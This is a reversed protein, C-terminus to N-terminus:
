RRVKGLMVLPGKRESKVAGGGFSFFSSQAAPLEEVKASVLVKAALAGAPAGPEDLLKIALGQMHIYVYIYTCVCVCM